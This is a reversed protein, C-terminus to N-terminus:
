NSFFCSLFDFYDQSNTSRDNNYDANGSFFDSLFDFYDQSNITGDLNWDCGCAGWTLMAAHVRDRVLVAFADTVANAASTDDTAGNVFTGVFYQRTYSQCRSRFPITIM